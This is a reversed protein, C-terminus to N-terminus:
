SNNKKYFDGKEVKYAQHAAEAETRLKIWEKRATQIKNEKESIKVKIIGTDLGIKNRLSAILVNSAKLTIKNEVYRLKKAIRKRSSLTMMMILSELKSLDLEHELSKEVLSDGKFIRFNNIYANEDILHIAKKIRTTLDEAKFSYAVVPHKTQTM